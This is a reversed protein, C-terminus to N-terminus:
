VTTMAKLALNTKHGTLMQSKKYEGTNKDTTVTQSQQLTHTHTHTFSLSYTHSHTKHKKGSNIIILM